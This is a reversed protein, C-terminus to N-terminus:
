WMAGESGLWCTGACNIANENQQQKIGKKKRGCFRNDVSVVTCDFNTLAGKGDKNHAAAKTRLGIVISFLKLRLLANLDFDSEFNRSRTVHKRTYVDKRNRVRDISM